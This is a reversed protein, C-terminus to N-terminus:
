PQDSTRRRRAFGPRDDVNPHLARSNRGLRRQSIGALCHRGGSVSTRQAISDAGLMDNPAGLHNRWFDFSLVVVPNGNPTSDDTQTFLRGRSPQAGLMSFYNGSVVEGAAIQANNHWILDFNAPTTAIMNQFARDQKLLDRYMPYSFYAEKDGGHSGTHGEFVKGTGELVVLEEPHSVPLSRLLAQDLLSFIATNAGIGLALTIVATLAFGPSRRFQRLAFPLDQQLTTM